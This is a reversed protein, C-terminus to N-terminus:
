KPKNQNLHATRDATTKRVKALVDAVVALEASSYLRVIARTRTILPGFVTLVMKDTRATPQILVQRRDSPHPRRRVYKAKELRDIVTTIGGTTFGLIRALETATLSRERHVIDLATADTRNLGFAVSAAEDFRDLETGLLRLERIVQEVSDSPAPNGTV